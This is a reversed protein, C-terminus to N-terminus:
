LGSLASAYSQRVIASDEGPRQYAIVVLAAVVGAVSVAVAATVAVQVSLVYNAFAWVSGSSAAATVQLGTPAQHKAAVAQVDRSFATLAEEAEYPDGAQAKVTVNDHFDPDEALLEALVEDTVTTPAELVPTMNLQEVLEPKEKAIPGRAFVLFDVVDRDSYRLNASSATLASSTSVHNVPAAYAPSAALAVSAALLGVGTVVGFRRTIKM